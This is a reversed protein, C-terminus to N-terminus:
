KQKAIIRADIKQYTADPVIGKIQTKMKYPRHAIIKQAYADGIGPLTMLQQKSASNIDILAAAAPATTAPKAAVSKGAVPAPKATVATVAVPASSKASLVPAAKAAPAPSKTATKTLPTAAFLSASLALSAVPILMRVLKKM